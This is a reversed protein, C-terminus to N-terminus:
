SRCALLWGTIKINLGHMHFIFPINTVFVFYISFSMSILVLYKVFNGQTLLNIYIKVLAIFSFSRKHHPMKALHFYHFLGFLILLTYLNLLIFISQWNIYHAIYAGIVPGILGSLSLIPTIYTIIYRARDKTFRYFFSSKALVAITGSCVSQIFRGIILLWIQHTLICIFTSAIFILFSALMVRRYGYRNIIISSTLQGIAFGLLYASITLQVQVITSNLYNKILPLAPLYIDSSLYGLGQSLTVFLVFLRDQRKNQLDNLM